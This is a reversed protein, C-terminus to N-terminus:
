GPNKPDFHSKLGQWCDLYDKQLTETSLAFETPHYVLSSEFMIAMTNSLYAPTLKAESAKDFTEADVGHASMCNHLSSGGPLFGKAKADYAGTILGMYESMINRHYYPPRFSHDAVTWRSRFLVFDVNATNPIESPSTLVTWLSPDPHDVTGTILAQYHNLNFKFPAYNGHWAVVDLPCHDLPAQWLHGEFKALLTFKGPRDEYRAVPAKFDRPEALGNAGILGLNPLRFPLGYNECVYGYARGDQPNIQFKMGRPILAIDEPGVYLAGMETLIELQGVQPVLLFEGDANFFYRDGMPRNFNYLHIASGRAGGRDGNGAMTLLGEIFDCNEKPATLPDWRLQNPNVPQQDFPRSKIKRSELPTFRGHLVSPRIRYLWSHLNEARNVTFASGSLQEAYLGYKVKQPSNQGVPLAGPLAETALHNGFGSQYKVDAM